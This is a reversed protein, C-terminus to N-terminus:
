QLGPYVKDFLFDIVEGATVGDDLLTLADEILDKNLRGTNFYHSVSLPDGPYAYESLIRTIGKKHGELADCLAYYLEAEEEKEYSYGDEYSYPDGVPNYYVKENVSTEKYYSKKEAKNDASPDRAVPLSDWDIKLVAKALKKLHTLDLSENSTHENLYGVSINTCEPIIGEFEATDTYIGTNDPVYMFSDDLNNLENALAEAFSNSATTTCMQETIISYTSRRDFAVAIQFQSLLAPRNDALWGSGIGGKEEGQFFIYYGPVNHDLMHLLISIGAADDAGLIDDQAKMLGGNITFYNVGDNRHVTDVHSTFLTFHRTHSRNDVHINGIYDVFPDKDSVRQMIYDCLKTVGTGGHPRKISVAFKLDQLLRSFM